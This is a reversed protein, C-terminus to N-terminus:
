RTALRAAKAAQYDWTTIVEGPVMKRYQNWGKYNSPLYDAKRRFSVAVHEFPSMHGNKRLSNHLEIDKDLDRKGEHTLYSVRACRGTSVATLIAMQRNEEALLFDPSDPKAKLDEWALAMRSAEEIDEGTILPLHWFGERVAPEPLTDRNFYLDAMKWALDQFEPQADPHCRLAFFNAWDTASIIATIQSWPELLRGAWQKHLGLEMLAEAYEASNQACTRWLDEAEKQDKPSMNELQAQMGKQELGWRIPLVPNTKVRAVQKAVPIARTSQANRSFLRITMIEAWIYRPVKVEFTTLRTGGWVNVTDALIRAECYSYTM